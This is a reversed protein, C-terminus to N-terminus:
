GQKDFYEGGEPEHLKNLMQKGRRLNDFDERMASMKWDVHETMEANAARLQEILGHAEAVLQRVRAREDDTVDEAERWKRQLENWEATVLDTRDAFESLHRQVGSLEDDALEGNLGKQAEAVASLWSVFRELDAIVRQAITRDSAM